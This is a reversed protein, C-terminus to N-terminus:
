CGAPVASMGPLLVRAGYARLAFAAGPCFTATCRRVIMVVLPPPRSGSQCEYVAVELLLFSKTTWWLLRSMHRRLLLATSGQSCDFPVFIRTDSRSKHVSIFSLIFVIACDYCWCDGYWRRRYGTWYWWEFVVCDPSLSTVSASSSPEPFVEQGQQLWERFSFRSCVVRTLCEQSVRRATSRTAQPTDSHLAQTHQTYNYRLHASKHRVSIKASPATASDSAAANVRLGGGARLSHRSHGM